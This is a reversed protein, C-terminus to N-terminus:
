KTQEESSCAPLDYEDLVWEQVAYPPGTFWHEERNEIYIAVVVRQGVDTCRWRKGSLRFELGIKFDEHKM